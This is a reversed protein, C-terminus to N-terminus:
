SVFSERSSSPFFSCFCILLRFFKALHFAPSPSTGSTAPFPAAQGLRGGPLPRLTAGEWETGGSDTGLMSARPHLQPPLFVCFSTLQTGERGETQAERLGRGQPHVQSLCYLISAGLGGLCKVPAREERSTQTAETTVTRRTLM